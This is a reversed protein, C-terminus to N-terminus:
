NRYCVMSDLALANPRHVWEPKCPDDSTNIWEGQPSSAIYWIRTEGSSPVTFSFSGQKWQMTDGNSRPYESTLAYNDDDQYIRVYPVLQSGDNQRIAYYKDWWWNFTCYFSAGPCAKVDQYLWMSKDFHFNGTQFRYASGGQGGAKIKFDVIDRGSAEPYYEWPSFKGDDWGGNIIPNTDECTPVPEIGTDCFCRTEYVKFPTESDDTDDLTGKYLECYNSNYYYFTECNSTGQCSQYCDLLSNASVSSLLRFGNSAGTAYGQKGCIAGAPSPEKLNDTCESAETTTAAPEAATTTVIDEFMTTMMFDETETFVPPEAPTCTTATTTADSESTTVTIDTSSAVSGTVTSEETKTTGESSTATESVTITTETSLASGTLTSQETSTADEATSTADGSSSAATESVTVVTETSLTSGTLTSQETTTTGVAASSSSPRCPGANVFPSLVATLIFSHVLHRAM